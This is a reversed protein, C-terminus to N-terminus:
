RANSNRSLELSGRGRADTTITGAVQGDILVQYTTRATLGEVDVEFEQKTRDNTDLEIEAEGKATGSTATLPAGRKIEDDDAVEAGFQGALVVNGNETVDVRAVGTLDPVGAPLPQQTEYAPMAAAYVAATLCVVALGLVPWRKKWKAM